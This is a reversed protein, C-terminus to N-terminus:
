DGFKNQMIELTQEYVIELDDIKEEIIEANNNGAAKEMEFAIERLNSAYINMAMGKITHAQLKLKDFDRAQWAEKLENFYDPMTQIAKNLLKETINSGYEDNLKEINLLHDENIQESNSEETNQNNIELDIQDTIIEAFDDQDIPKSLFGDMGAELTQEKEDEMVGATLAIIPVNQDDKRIERTAELGNMDPMHIDMLIVDPQEKNFVELAQKGNKSEFISANPLLKKVINKALMMNMENDEAILIDISLSSIEQKTKTEAKTGKEFKQDSYIELIQQLSNQKVPKELKHNIGYKKLSRSNIDRDTSSYILICPRSESSLKLQQAMELGTMDPMQYDVIILDITDRYKKYKHIGSQGNGSLYSSIGWQHLINKIITRNHANDDVVLANQIQIDEFEQSKERVIEMEITFYFRSGKGKKSDLKLEGGMKDVLQSSITLGLGTGGFRRTTSGDAQTFSEFIREQQEKNIGIGTDIVSFTLSVIHDTKNQVAAKLEIEGENTFKVANSLLNALVQRLRGSDISVMQPLDSDIDLLLEIGKEHAPIKIIDITKEMLDILDSDVYDLELRGAEIKSFDLIDNILELLTQGSNNVNKLHNRQTSNLETDLLLETFGIISNLPTRIEHSMSALFDSKAKSAARADKAYKQAKEKAEILEAETTKLKTIDVAIGAHRVVKDQDDKVQFSQARIWKTKGSPQIIRYEERFHGTKQYEQLKKIIRNRDDDHISVVFSNPNKYLSERSRGWLKEYSPSIYIMKSSDKSRLWVVESLNETIQSFKEENQRLKEKARKRDTIDHAIGILNTIEGNEDKVISSNASHWRWNGNKHKVRYTVTGAKEGTKLYKQLKKKIESLDEPHVFEGFEHGIVESREHGLIEKWNPSVYSFINDTTLSYIIDNANEVFRRFKRESKILAQQDEKRENIDEIIGVMRTKKDSKEVVNGLDRFWIYNGNSTKMRYEVEYTSEKGDLHDRMAQMAREYDDPHILDTFDTYNNFQEPSYGIMEAKRSDFTVQGSPFNLEWWALNGAKLGAEVREALEKQAQINKKRETIDRSVVIAKEYDGNKSYIFRAHDERWKYENNPTKARYIYKTEKRGMKIANNIKNQVEDLDDPHILSLIESEDRGIEKSEPYGLIKSYAPSAYTIKGNKLVIIGDSTNEAIFRYRRESQKLEEESKVRQWYHRILFFTTILIIFATSFLLIIEIIYQQHYNEYTIDAAASHLYAIQEGQVNRIPLFVHAIVSNERRIPLVYKGGIKVKEHICELAKKDLFTLSYDNNSEKEKFYNECLKSQIYQSQQNGWITEEIVSKKILFSYDRPFTNHLKDRIHDFGFSIEVSGLHEGDLILPYVNRFGYKVRGSEFGRVTRLQSNALNVSYRIDKLSDGYKEPKHLRLFSTGDPLHFHFQRVHYSDMQEYVPGMIKLLEQRVNERIQKDDSDAQKYKNLIYPHNVYHNFLIDATNVYSDLISNYKLQIEKLLVKSHERKELFHNHRIMFFVSITLGIIVFASILIYKYFTSNSNQDILVSDDQM